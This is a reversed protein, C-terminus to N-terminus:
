VSSVPLRSLKALIAVLRVRDENSVIVCLEEAM